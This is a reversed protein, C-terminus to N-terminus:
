FGFGFALVGGFLDGDTDDYALEFYRHAELGLRVYGGCNGIELSRQIGAGVELVPTDDAAHDEDDEGFLYSARGNVYIAWPGSLDRTLDIGVVPGLGDYDVEPSGAYPEELDLHRVGVSWEGNWSGLSVPRFAEVDIAQIEPGEESSSGDTGDFSFYRVRYGWSSQDAQYALSIRYGAEYDQDEYGSSDESDAELYLLAAELTWPCSPPPPPPIVGKAAPAEEGAMAFACLGFAALGTTIGFKTSM